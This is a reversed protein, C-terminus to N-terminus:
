TDSVNRCFGHFKVFSKYLKFTGNIARRVLGLYSTKCLYAYLFIIGLYCSLSFAKKTYSFLLPFVYLRNLFFINILCARINLKTSSKPAGTERGRPFYIDMAFKPIRYGAVPKSGLDLVIVTQFYVVHQESM